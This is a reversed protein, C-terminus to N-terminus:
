CASFDNERRRAVCRPGSRRPGRARGSRAAQGPPPPPPPQPPLHQRLDPLGLEHRRALRDLRRVTRAPGAATWGGYPAGGGQRRWGKRAIPPASSNRAPQHGWRLITPRRRPLPITAGGGGRARAPRWPERLTRPESSSSARSELLALYLGGDRRTAAVAVAARLSTVAPPAAPRGGSRAGRSRSSPGAARTSGGLGGVGGAQIAGRLMIDRWRSPAVASSRPPPTAGQGGPGQGYLAGGWGGGPRHDLAGARPQRRAEVLVEAAAAEDGVAGLRGPRDAGLHATRERGGGGDPRAGRAPVAAAALVAPAV